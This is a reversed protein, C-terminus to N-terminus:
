TLCMQHLAIIEPLSDLSPNHARSIVDLLYLADEKISNVEIEAQARRDPLDTSATIGKYRAYWHPRAVKLLFDPHCAALAEIAQNMQDTLQQLYTLDSVIRLIQLHPKQGLDHINVVGIVSLRELIELFLAQSLSDVLLCNRFERLASPYFGPYGVPLHLAYKWDLRSRVAEIAQRDALSELYQFITVLAMRCLFLGSRFHNPDLLEMELSDLLANAQDGLQLYVDGQPYAARAALATDQPMDPLVM